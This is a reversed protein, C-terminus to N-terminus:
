RGDQQRRILALEAELARVQTQLLADPAIGAATIATETAKDALRTSGIALEKWEEMRRKPVWRETSLMWIVFTGLAILGGTDLYEYLAPFGDM